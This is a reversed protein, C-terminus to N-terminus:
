EEPGTLGHIHHQQEQILRRELDDGYVEPYCPPLSAPPPAPLM